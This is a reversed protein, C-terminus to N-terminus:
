VPDCVRRDVARRRSVANAEAVRVQERLDLAVVRSGPALRQDSEALRDAVAQERGAAYPTVLREVGHDRVREHDVRDLADALGRDPDLVSPDGTEAPGPVRVRHLAHSNRDAGGGADDRGLAQDHCRTDDVRVDVQDRRL